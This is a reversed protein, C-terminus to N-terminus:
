MLRSRLAASVFTTAFSGLSPLSVAGTVTFTSNGLDVGAGRTILCGTAGGGGGTLILVSSFFSVSSFSTGGTLFSTGGTLFSSFSTGGTFFSTGGTLFSSFSTGG